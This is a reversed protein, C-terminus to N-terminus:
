QNALRRQLVLFKGLSKHVLSLVAQNQYELNSSIFLSLLSSLFPVQFTLHSSSFFICEAKVQQKERTSYWTRQKVLALEPFSKGSVQLKVLIGCCLVMMVILMMGQM